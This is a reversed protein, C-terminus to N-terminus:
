QHYHPHQHHLHFDDDQLDLMEQPQLPPPKRPDPRPMFKPMDRRKMLDPSADEVFIVHLHNKALIPEFIRQSTIAGQFLIKLTSYTKCFWINLLSKKYIEKGRPLAQEVRRM